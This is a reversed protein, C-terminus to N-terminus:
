RGRARDIQMQTPLVRGLSHELGLLDAETTSSAALSSANMDEICLNVQRIAAEPDPHSVILGRVAAQLGIVLGDLYALRDSIEQHM